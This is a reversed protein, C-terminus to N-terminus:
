SLSIRKGEKTITLTPQQELVGIVEFEAPVFLKKKAWEREPETKGDTVTFVSLSNTDAIITFEQVNGPYQVVANGSVSSLVHIMATLDEAIRVKAVDLSESRSQAISITGIAVAVVILIEGITLM